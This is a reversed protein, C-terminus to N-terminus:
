LIAIMAKVEEAKISYEQGLEKFFDKFRKKTGDYYKAGAYRQSNFIRYDQHELERLLKKNIEYIINLEPNEIDYGAGHYRYNAAMHDAIMYNFEEIMKIDKKRRNQTLNYLKKGNRKKMKKVNDYDHILLVFDEMVKYIKNPPIKKFLDLKSEIIEKRSLEERKPIKDFYERHWNIYSNSIVEFQDDILFLLRCSNLINEFIERLQEDSIIDHDNM